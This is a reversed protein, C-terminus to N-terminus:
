DQQVIFKSMVNGLKILYIGNTYSSININQPVESFREQLIGCSNYIEIVQNRNEISLYLIDSTPNPSCKLISFNNLDIIKVIDSYSYQGDFDFQRLRYYSTKKLYTKDTWQYNLIANSNGAGQIRAIDYFTIADESREVEFYDNNIESSTTWELVNGSTTNYGSFKILDVPLLTCDFLIDCEDVVEQISSCGLDNNEINAPNQSDALFDCISQVNCISLLENNDINVSDLLDPDINELGCLNPLLENFYITLYGHLNSLGSLGSLSTLLQNRDIILNGNITMLSNIGSLTVLSQNNFIDLDGEIKNLSNLGILNNLLLNNYINFTGGILKLAALGNLSTMSQNNDIIFSGGITDLHTLGQFCTMVLNNRVLLDGGIFDLSGLGSFCTLNEHGNVELDGGVYDLSSLNDLNVLLDNYQILFNGGVSDVNMLGNLNVLLPNNSITINGGIFTITSFGNLNTIEAGQIIINGTIRTCGPYNMTFDDIQQQTSFLTSGPLCNQGTINQYYISAIAIFFLITRM